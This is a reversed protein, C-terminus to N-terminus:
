HAVLPEVGAMRCTEDLDFLGGQAGYCTVCGAGAAAALRGADECEMGRLLGTLFAGLFCDGAGTTDVVKGPPTVPEIWASKGPEKSVMAGDAGLKVGLVGQCGFDRYASLIREPESEGTEQIAEQHSPFYCDVLPLCAKVVEPDSGSGAAEVVTMCGRDRALQLVEPLRPQLEPLLSLYGVLLMRSQTLLREHRLFLDADLKELAGVHHGFSRQGATDVLVASTSTAQEGREVANTNIDLRRLRELLLDGFEDSGVLTMAAVRMGYRSMAAGTNAVIGGPHVTLPKTPFLRDPGIPADLDVPQVVVDVVATGCITVDFERDM